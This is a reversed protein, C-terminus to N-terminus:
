YPNINILYCITMSRAFNVELKKTFTMHVMVAPLFVCDKHKFILLKLEQRLTRANCHFGGACRAPIDSESLIGAAAPM